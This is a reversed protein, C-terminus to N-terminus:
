LIDLAKLTREYIEMAEKAQDASLVFDPDHAINSRIMHARKLEELTPITVPPIRQLQEELTNGFGMRKFIEELMSEAELIALKYEDERQSELRKIIKKWRLVRKRLAFAKYAAFEKWDEMFLFKGYATQTFVWFIFVLLAFGTFGFILRFVLLKAQLEPSVIQRLIEEM